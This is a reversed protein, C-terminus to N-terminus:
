QENIDAIIICALFRLWSALNLTQVAMALEWSRKTQIVAIPKSCVVCIDVNDIIM